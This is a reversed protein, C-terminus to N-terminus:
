DWEGMRCMTFPIKWLEMNVKNSHKSGFAWTAVIADVPEDSDYYRRYSLYKIFVQAERHELLKTLLLYIYQVYLGLDFSLECWFIIFRDDRSRGVGEELLCIFAYNFILWFLLLLKM